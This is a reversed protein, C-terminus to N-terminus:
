SRGPLGAARRRPATHLSPRAHCMTVGAGSPPSKEPGYKAVTFLGSGAPVDACAVSLEPRYSVDPGVEAPSPAALPVFDGRIMRLAESIWETRASNPDWPVFVLATMM